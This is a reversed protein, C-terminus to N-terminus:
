AGPLHCAPAVEIASSHKVEVHIVDLVPGQRHVDSEQELGDVDHKAAFPSASRKVKFAESPHQQLIKSSVDRAIM